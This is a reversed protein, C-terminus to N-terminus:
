SCILCVTEFRTRICPCMFNFLGRTLPGLGGDREVGTHDQSSFLLSLFYQLITRPSHQHHETHCIQTKPVALTVFDDVRVTKPALSNGDSLLRFGLLAGTEIGAGAAKAAGTGPPL